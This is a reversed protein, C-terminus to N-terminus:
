EEEQPEDPPQHSYSSRRAAEMDFSEQHARTWSLMLDRMPARGRVFADLARLTERHPDDEPLHARTVRWLAATLLFLRRVQVVTQLEGYIEHIGPLQSVDWPNQM